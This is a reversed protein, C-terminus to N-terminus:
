RTKRFAEAAMARISAARAEPSAPKRVTTTGHGYQANLAAARAKTEAQKRLFEAKWDETKNTM